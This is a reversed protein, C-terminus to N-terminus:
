GRYSAIEDYSYAWTGDEFNSEYVPRMTDFLPTFDISEDMIMGSELLTDLEGQIGDANAVTADAFAEAAADIIIEQIDTPLTALWEESVFLGGFETIHNTPYIYNTVEFYKDSRAQEYPCEVANVVGTSLSSYVDAGGIIQVSAGLTQWAAIYTALDPIRIVLDSIDDASTMPDSTLTVRSARVCTGIMGVNSESLKSIFADWIESDILNSMHEANEVLFPATLFDYEPAFYGVAETGGLYFEMENNSLATFTDLQSGLVSSYFVNITVTGDTRENVTDAFWQACLGMVSSDAQPTSMTAEWTQDPDATATTSTTASSSSSETTDSSSCAVLSLSMILSLSLTLLKKM